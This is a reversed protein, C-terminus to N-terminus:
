EEKTFLEKHKSIEEITRKYLDVDLPKKFTTHGIVKIGAPIVEGYVIVNEGEYESLSHKQEEDEEMFCLLVKTHDEGTLFIDDEELVVEGLVAVEGKNELTKETLVGYM